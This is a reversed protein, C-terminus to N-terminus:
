EKYFKDVIWDEFTEGDMDTGIFWEPNDSNFGKFIVKQGTEKSVLVDNVNWM